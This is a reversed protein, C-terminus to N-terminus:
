MQQAAVREPRHIPTVVSHSPAVAATKLTAAEATPAPPGDFATKAALTYIEVHDKRGRLPTVIFPILPFKEKAHYRTEASVLVNFDATEPLSKTMTELRAAVNVTDGFLSYNLRNRNGVTGGVLPGTHIGIGFKITPLRQATLQCNLLTLRDHMEIAATLAAIADTRIEDPHTRPVPAGFVAMIADGIYKDVMGGNEMICDTMTEFYQNLWPLLKQSPLIEAIGTFGRIDMFLVTATLNQAALEGQDLIEGKNRWILEATGPSVNMSFLAMLQQKEQQEHLQVALASLFVTGIPAAIPLWWGLIFGSYAIASWLLPFGVVAMLRGSAEQKRLLHSGGIALGVLLLLAQWQPLRRLYSQNLLNDITAAYLYVGSVPPSKQFPTRLPDIGALTAGVLVIKNQFLSADVQGDVVDAYSYIQLDGPRSSTYPAAVEGPWNLWVTQEAPLLSKIVSQPDATLSTAIGAHGSAKSSQELATKELVSPYHRKAATQQSTSAHGSLSQKPTQPASLSSGAPSVFATSSTQQVHTSPTGANGPPFQLHPVTPPSNEAILTGSMVEAYVQLTALGLSPNGGAGYLRLRRSVGDDDTLIGADGRLFFGEAPDALTNAVDIYRGRHNTGVSLVVNANDVIAQALQPDQDSTDPFLVNFAVVAPQVGALKDLLETYRDRTWPYPGLAEVSLDDITIVAIRDDWQPAGTFERRAQHLLNYSQQELVNWAGIASFGVSIASVVVGSLLGLRNAAVQQEGQRRQNFCRKFWAYYAQKAQTISTKASLTKRKFLM